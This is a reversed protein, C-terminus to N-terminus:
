VVEEGSTPELIQNAQEEDFSLEEEEGSTTEQTQGKAKQEKFLEMQPEDHSIDGIKTSKDKPEGSRSGTSMKRKNDEQGSTTKGKSHGSANSRKVPTKGKNKPTKPSRGVPSTPSIDVMPEVRTSLPPVYGFRDLPVNAWRKDGKMKILLELDMHGLRIQTRLDPDATRAVRCNIELAKNRQYAWFPM